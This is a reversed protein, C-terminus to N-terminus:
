DKTTWCPMNIQNAAYFFKNKECWVERSITHTLNGETHGGRAHVCTYCKKVTECFLPRDENPMDKGLLELVFDQLKVVVEQVFYKLKVSLTQM